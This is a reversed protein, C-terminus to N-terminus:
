ANWSSRQPTTAWCGLSPRTRPSIGATWTRRSSERWRTRSSAGIASRPGRLEEGARKQETIDVMVGRLLEPRGEADLVVHVIDRLWVISGDAAVARYEFEHNRGEATAAQCFGVARERDDPHIISAWFGHEGLWRSVPYGLIDEARQSVFTFRWTAAEAEWLIVDLDQVLDQLHALSDPEVDQLQPESLGNRVDM